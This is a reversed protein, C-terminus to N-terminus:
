PCGPCTLTLTDPPATDSVVFTKVTSPPCQLIWLGSTTSRRAELISVTYSGGPINPYSKTTTVLRATKLSDAANLSPGTVTWRVMVSDAAAVLSPPSGCPALNNNPSTTFTFTLTGAQAASTALLLMGILLAKM